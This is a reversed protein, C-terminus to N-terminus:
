SRLQGYHSLISWLYKKLEYSPFSLSGLFSYMFIRFINLYSAAVVIDENNESILGFKGNHLMHYM